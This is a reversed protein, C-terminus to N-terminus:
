QLNQIRLGARGATSRQQITQSHMGSDSTSQSGITFSRHILCRLIMPLCSSTRRTLCSASQLSFLSSHEGSGDM